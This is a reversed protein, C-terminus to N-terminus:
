HQINKIKSVIFPILAYTIISGIGSFILGVLSSVTYYAIFVLISMIFGSDGYYTTKDIITLLFIFLCMAETGIIWSRWWESCNYSCIANVVFVGLVFLYFYWLKLMELIFKPFIMIGAAVGMFLVLGLILYVWWPIEFDNEKFIFITIWM